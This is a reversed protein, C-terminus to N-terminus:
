KRCQSPPWLHQSSFKRCSHVVALMEKEIQAYNTETPSLAPSTYALPQGNQLLVGGLAFSSADCQITLIKSPDYFALVPVKSCM